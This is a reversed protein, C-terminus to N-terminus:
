WTYDQHSQAELPPVAYGEPNGSDTDDRQTNKNNM